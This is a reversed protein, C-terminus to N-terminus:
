NTSCVSESINNIKNNDFVFHNIDTEFIEDAFVLDLKDASKFEEASKKPAFVLNIKIEKTLGYTNETNFLVPVYVGSTNDLSMEVLKDMSFNLNYVREKYEEFKTIKEFMTAKYEDAYDKVPAITLVFNLDNSKSSEKDQLLHKPLYEMKVEFGSITKTVVYDEKHKKYIELCEQKTKTHSCASLLLILLSIHLSLLKM